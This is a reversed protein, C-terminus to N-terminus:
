VAGGPRRADNLAVAEGLLDPLRVLRERALALQADAGVQRQAWGPVPAVGRGADRPEFLPSRPDGPAAAAVGEEADRSEDGLRVRRGVVGHPGARHGVG